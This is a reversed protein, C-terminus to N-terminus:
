SHSTEATPPSLVVSLDLLGSCTEFSLEEDLVEPVTQKSLQAVHHRVLVQGFRHQHAEHCSM